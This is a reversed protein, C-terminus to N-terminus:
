AVHATLMAELTDEDSEVDEGEEDSEGVYATKGMAREILALFDGRDTRCSHKSITRVCYRPILTTHVSIAISGSAISPRRRSAARV